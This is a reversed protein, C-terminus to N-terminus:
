QPNGEWGIAYKGTEGVRPLGVNHGYESYGYLYKRDGDNAISAM